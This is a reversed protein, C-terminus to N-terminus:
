AADVDGVDVVPDLVEGDGANEVRSCQEDAADGPEGTVAVVNPTSM